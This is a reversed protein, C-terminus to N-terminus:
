DQTGWSSYSLLRSGTSWLLFWQLSFGVCCLLSHGGSAAVLSFGHLLLSSVIYGFSWFFFFISSHNENGEGPSRVLSPILGCRRCPLNKVVSGGPFGQAPLYISEDEDGESLRGQHSVPLPDVWWAPSVLQSEPDPLDGPPPFPFSGRYEQRPFGM